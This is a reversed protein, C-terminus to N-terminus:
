KSPYWYFVNLFAKYINKPAQLLNNYNKQCTYKSISHRWFVNPLVGSRHPGSSVDPFSSRLRLGCDQIFNFFIFNIIKIIIM